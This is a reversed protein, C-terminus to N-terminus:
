KKKSKKSVGKSDSENFSNKLEKVSQGISRSLEPLKDKGFFLLALLVILVLEGAGFGWLGM